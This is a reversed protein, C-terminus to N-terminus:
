FVVFKLPQNIQLLSSSIISQVESVRSDFTADNAMAEPDRVVNVLDLYKMIVSRLGMSAFYQIQFFRM